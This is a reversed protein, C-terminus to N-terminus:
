KSIFPLITVKSKCYPVMIDIVQKYYNEEFKFVIVNKRKRLQKMSNRKTPIVVPSFYLSYFRGGKGIGSYTVGWDNINEWTFHIMEKKLFNKEYVGDYDIIIKHGYCEAFLPIFVLSIFIIWISIFILNPVNLDTSFCVAFFSDPWGFVNRYIYYRTYDV